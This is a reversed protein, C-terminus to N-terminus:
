HLSQTSAIETIQHIDVPVTLGNGQQELNDGPQGIMEDYASYQRLFCHEFQFEALRAVILSLSAATISKGKDDILTYEKGGAKVFAQYLCNELSEVMLEKSGDLQKLQRLNLQPM